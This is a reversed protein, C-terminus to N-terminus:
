YSALIAFCAVTIGIFLVATMIGWFADKSILEALRFIAITKRSEFGWRHIAFNCLTKM